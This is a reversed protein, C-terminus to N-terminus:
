PLKLADSEVNLQYLIKSATEKKKKDNSFSDVLMEFISFGGVRYSLL